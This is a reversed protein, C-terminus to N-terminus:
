MGLERWLSTVITTDQQLLQLNMKISGDENRLHKDRDPIDFITDKTKLITKNNKYHKAFVKEMIPKLEFTASNRVIFSDHVPLVIHNLKLMELMVEEAIISDEKMLSNGIGTFFQDKIPDHREIIEDMIFQAQKIGESKITNFAKIRNNCNLMILTADKRDKILDETNRSDDDVEYPYRTLEKEEKAYLIRLHHGSYDVEETPKHNITIYKRFERPISQWWGGYFRGGQDFSSNNFVRHLSTHTFDPFFDVRDRQQNLREALVQYLNDDMELAIRTESFRKNIRELNSRWQLVEKNSRYKIPNKDKNKLVIYDQKIGILSTQNTLPTHQLFFSILKPSAKMRSSFSYSPFNVHDKNTIYGLSELLNFTQIFSEYKFHLERLRKGKAYHNKNRSYGVWPNFTLFYAKWLNALINNCAHRRAKKDMVRQANFRYAEFVENWILEFGKKLETNIKYADFLMAKRLYFPNNTDIGTIQM